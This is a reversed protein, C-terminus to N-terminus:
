GTDDFDEDETEDLFQIRPTRTNLYARQRGQERRIGGHRNDSRQGSVPVNTSGRAWGSRRSPLNSRTQNVRQLASTRQDDGRLEREIDFDLGFGRYPGSIIDVVSTGGLRYTESVPPEHQPAWAEVDFGLGM